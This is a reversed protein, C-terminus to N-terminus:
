KATAGGLHTSLFALLRTYYARRHEETYFGHGENPFYLTEVPVGSAKLAREMRESHAIPAREDKGGAALFVPVKIRSALQSPSRAALTERTGMWDGAWTRGSRSRDSQARHMLGLDYVGVYGAACRYLDPERAVGMLAAYGGYSAGHICIRQPDAIGQAIAWRTADTLDDQMTGGWERAGLQLHAAGYNGSGRYNVRLVAYGAAALIQADDDFGWEDFIGFPGGHPLVVLPLPGEAAELPRTLYGDIPLGDRAQLRVATSPPVLHPPLWERRAFIRDASKNVTDFLFYDGSNRDSWSYIVALRGDASASTIHIADGGFAKELSRYLRSTPAADDFFRNRVRDTMFSAGIPTRGDLDYLIQYPDVRADRLLETATSTAPDWAVISDPGQPHEVQLYAVRGDASFGRPIWSRASDGSDHILRWSAANDDRYYLKRVNDTDAGHAFRINGEADATFDARKIPPVAIVSRQRTYIDLREVRVTPDRTLPVSSVLVNRRDQPLTDFLFVAQQLMLQVTNDMPGGAGLPSALLQANRGTVDVAHLEGISVPEDRSGQKRAISVVVREDNGWWFDEIVSDKRGTIKATPVNDARRVIALVTRDELPTIVAYYDGNPSIKVRQYQAQRLYPALDVQQAQAAISWVCALLMGARMM